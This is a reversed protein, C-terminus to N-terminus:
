APAFGDFRRRMAASYLYPGIADSWELGLATPELMGSVEEFAGRDALIALEPAADYASRGYLAKFRRLDLGGVRLASKLIHRRRREGDDLAVGRRAYAFAARDRAAYDQVVDLVGRRSVAYDDSYHVARTYSRAGSGLGLMGDEQCAYEAHRAAVGDRQFRRMSIQRYGAALLVERGTRYLRLRHDDWVAARGDLGTRPRVYLPYLFLEEPAWSLAQRLSERWSETTQTAAGYILDINLRAFPQDRIAALARELDRTAQPRGMARAEAELFSQAGISVREVGREALLSLREPTATKPSTEISTPVRRPDAQFLRRAQDLLAALEPPELFTPTGGGVAFQAARADGLEEAATEAERRWAELFRTKLERAPNVTTFLNCFGCRMECFPLHIYLFLRRRNEGAWLRGLRMPAAFPAYASKHPYSYAYSQYPPGLLASLAERGASGAPDRQDNM